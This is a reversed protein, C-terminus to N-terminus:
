NIAVSAKSVSRGKSDSASVSCRIQKGAEADTLLLFDDGRDIKAWSAGDSSQEWIVSVSADGSYSIASYKCILKKPEVKAAVPGWSISPGEATKLALEGATSIDVDSVTQAPVVTAGPTLSTPSTAVPANYGLSDGVPRNAAPETTEVPSTDEPSSDKSAEDKPAEPQGAGGGNGGKGGGFCGGLMASFLIASVLIKM